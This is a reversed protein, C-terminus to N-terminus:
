IVGESIRSVSNEMVSFTYDSRDTNQLTRCYRARAADRVKDEKAGETIPVSAEKSKTLWTLKSGSWCRKCKSNETSLLSRGEQRM